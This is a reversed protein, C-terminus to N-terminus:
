IFLAIVIYRCNAIFHIAMATVLGKRWYIYGFFLSILLNIIFSSVTIYNLRYVIGAVQFMNVHGIAFIIAALINAVYNNRFIKALLTMAGFRTFVEEILAAYFPIFVAYKLETPYFGPAVKLFYRDGFIYIVLGLFLGYIIIQQWNDKLQEIKGWGALGVGKSWSFGILCSILVVCFLRLSEGFFKGWLNAQEVRLIEAPTNSIIIYYIYPLALVVAVLTFIISRMLNKKVM